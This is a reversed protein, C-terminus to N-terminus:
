EVEVKCATSTDCIFTVRGGRKLAVISCRSRDAKPNDPNFDAPLECEQEKLEELEDSQIPTDDKYKVTAHGSGPLLHFKVTRFPQKDDPKITEEITNQSNWSYPKKELPRAPKLSSFLGEIKQTWNPPKTNKSSTKLEAKGKPPAPDNRLAGRVVFIVFLLGILVLVIIVIKTSSM